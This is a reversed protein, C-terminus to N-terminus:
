KGTTPKNVVVKKVRNKESGHVVTKEIKHFTVKYIEGFFTSHIEEEVHYGQLQAFEVFAHFHKKQRKENENVQRNLERFARELRQKEVLDQSNRISYVFIFVCFALFLVLDVASTAEM